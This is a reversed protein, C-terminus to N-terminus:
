ACAHVQLDSQQLALQCELAYVEANKAAQLTAWDHRAQALQETLQAVQAETASSSNARDEALVQLM